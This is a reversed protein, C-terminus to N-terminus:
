VSMRPAACAEFLSISFITAALVSLDPTQFASKFSILSFTSRSSKTLDTATERTKGSPTRTFRISRTGFAEMEQQFKHDLGSIFASVAMVTVTGIVVGFVTLFSRFKHSRLTSFALGMSETLRFLNM